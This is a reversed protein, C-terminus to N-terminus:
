LIKCAKEQYSILDYTRSPSYLKRETLSSFNYQTIVMVNKRILVELFKSLFFIEKQTM